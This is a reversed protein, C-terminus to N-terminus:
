CSSVDWFLFFIQADWWSLFKKNCTETAQYIDHAHIILFYNLFVHVNYVLITDGTSTENHNRM